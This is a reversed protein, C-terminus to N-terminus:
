VAKLPEPAPAAVQQRRWEEDHKEAEELAEMFPLLQMGLDPRAWPIDNAVAMVVKYDADEIGVIADGSSFAKDLKRVRKAGDIGKGIAPASCISDMIFEHMTVVGPQGTSQRPRVTIPAAVVVYKM